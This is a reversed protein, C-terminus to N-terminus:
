RRKNNSIREILNIYSEGIAAAVILAFPIIVVTYFWNVDGNIAGFLLNLPILVLCCLGCFIRIFKIKLKKDM